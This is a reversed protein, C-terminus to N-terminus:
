RALNELVGARGASRAVGAPGYIGGNLFVLTWKSFPQVWNLDWESCLWNSCAHMENLKTINREETIYVCCKMLM